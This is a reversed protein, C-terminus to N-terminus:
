QKTIGKKFYKAETIGFDIFVLKQFVESYVINSPKIDM